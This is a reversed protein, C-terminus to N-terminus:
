PVCARMRLERWQVTLSQGGTVQTSAVPNTIYVGALVNRAGLLAAALATLVFTTSSPKSFM